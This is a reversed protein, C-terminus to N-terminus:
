VNCDVKGVEDDNVSNAHLVASDQVGNDKWASPQVIVASGRKTSVSDEILLCQAEVCQVEQDEDKIEDKIEARRPSQKYFYASVLCVMLGFLGTSTCHKDWFLWNMLVTVIKCVNGLIAFATASTMARLRYSFTSLGMGLVCSTGVCVWVNREWSMPALTSDIDGSLVAIALLGVSGLTNQYYVGGFPTMKVTDVVHKLYALDFNFAVYWIGIWYYGHVEFHVDTAIYLCSGFLLGALCLASQKDPLERGLFKYELFCLVLPVSARFVIFTEVNCYQLAKVGSFITALQATVAPWFKSVKEWTLPDVESLGTAGITWAFIASSIFQALLVVSPKPLYHVSLKNVMLMLSSCFMYGVTAIAKSSRPQKESDM